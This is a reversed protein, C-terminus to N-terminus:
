GFPTINRGRLRGMIVIWEADAQDHCGGKITYDTAMYIDCQFAFADGMTVPVDIGESLLAAHGDRTYSM